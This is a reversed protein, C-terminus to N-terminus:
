SPTWTGGAYALKLLRSSKSIDLKFVQIVDGAKNVADTLASNQGLRLEIEFENKKFDFKGSLEINASSGISTGATAPDAAFPQWTEKPVSSLEAVIAAWSGVDEVIAGGTRAATEQQAAQSSSRILKNITGIYKPICAAIADGAMKNMPMSGAVTGSIEFKDWVYELKGTTPNTRTKSWGFAAGLSGSLIGFAGSVTTELGFNQTGLSAQTTGRMGGGQSVLSGGSTKNRAGTAGKAREISEKNITSGSTGKVEFGLSALDKSLEIEAALKGYAGSSVEADPDAAFIRNEVSLSWDEAKQWGFDDTRGGFMGNTIERPIIPSQRCRRFLAYSMLEAVDAGTKAKANLYCGIGASLKAMSGVSAGGSVGVTLGASV